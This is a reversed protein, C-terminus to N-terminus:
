LKAKILKIEDETVYEREASPVDVDVLNEKDSMEALFHL